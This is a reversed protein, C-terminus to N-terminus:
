RPARIHNVTEVIMEPSNMAVTKVWSGTSPEGIILVTSHEEPKDTWGGLRTLIAKMNERSGTLFYWGPGAKFRAAHRRLAEPTDNVPDVSLTLIVVDRGVRAGLRRQVRALNQSIPICATTCSAFGFNVLVVKGRMLGDFFRHPRGHQDVVELNGFYRAAAAEEGDPDAPMRLRQAPADREPRRHAEDGHAPAGTAAALLLGATLARSLRGAGTM